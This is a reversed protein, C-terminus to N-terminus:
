GESYSRCWVYDLAAGSAVRIVKLTIGGGVTVVRPETTPFLLFGKTATPTTGDITFSINQTGINQWLIGDCDSPATLTQASALTANTVQTHSGVPIVPAEIIRESLGGM